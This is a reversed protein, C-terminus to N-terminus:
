AAVGEQLQKEYNEIRNRIIQLLKVYGNIFYDIAFYNEPVVIFFGNKNKYDIIFQINEVTSEEFYVDAELNSIVIQMERDIQLNYEIFKETDKNNINLTFGIVEDQDDEYKIYPIEAGLDRLENEWCVTSECFGKGLSPGIIGNLMELPDGTYYGDADYMPDIVIYSDNPYEYGLEKITMCDLLIGLKGQLRNIEEENINIM